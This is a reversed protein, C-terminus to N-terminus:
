ARATTPATSFRPTALAQEARPQATTSFTPASQGLVAGFMSAYGQAAGGSLINLASM